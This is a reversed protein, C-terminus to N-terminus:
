RKYIQLSYTCTVKCATLRVRHLKVTTQATDRLLLRGCGSWCLLRETVYKVLPVSM